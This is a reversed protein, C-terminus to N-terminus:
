NKVNKIRNMKKRKHRKWCKIIVVFITILFLTGLFTFLVLRLPSATLFNKLRVSFPPPILTGSPFVNFRITEKLIVQDDKYVEYDAWYQGAALSIAMEGESNGTGFSEVWTMNTIDGSKLRQQRYDDFIELHVKSPRTKVNGLNELIVIFKLPWEEELDPMNIGRIKFDSFQDGSVRLKFDIVAGLAVTVQGSESLPATKITMKGYYTNYGANEPVDVIIKIPFQQPGAPYVFEQGQDIKIWDKIDPADIETLIKIPNDPNSRTLTITQEFHSGPVLHNNWVRPPSIGFGAKTQYPFLFLLCATLLILSLVKVKM